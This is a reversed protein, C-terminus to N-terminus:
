ICTYSENLIMRAGLKNSWLNTRVFEMRPSSNTSSVLKGHLWGRTKSTSNFSVMRPIRTVNLGLNLIIVDLFKLTQIELQLFFFPILLNTRLIFHFSPHSLSCPYIKNCSALLNGQAVM